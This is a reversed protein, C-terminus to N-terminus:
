EQPRGSLKVSVIKIGDGIDTLPPVSSDQDGATETEPLATVVVDGAVTSQGVSSSISEDVGSDRPRSEEDEARALDLKEQLFSPPLPSTGLLPSIEESDELEQVFFAEGSEGLKMHIDVPEGNIEIDVVKERSRLVGMKGFRVHFPSSLYSGDEQRVVVVDIAGTLTAANIENYFDKFNSIFKGIYNM